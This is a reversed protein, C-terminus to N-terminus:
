VNQHEFPVANAGIGDSYKIGAGAATLLANRTADAGVIQITWLYGTLATGGTVTATGGGNATLYTQIATQLAAATTYNTGGLLNTGSANVMSGVSDTVLYVALTPNTTATIPNVNAQPMADLSAWPDGPNENSIGAPLLQLEVLTGAAFRSSAAYVGTSVITGVVFRKGSRTTAYLTYGPPLAGPLTGAILVQLNGAATTGINQVPWTLGSPLNQVEGTLTYATAVPFAALHLIARSREPFLGKMGSMYRAYYTVTEQFPDEPSHFPRFEGAYNTAPFMEMGGNAMVNVMAAPPVMWEVSDLNVWLTETYLAIQPNFYDPNPMSKVGEAAGGDTNVPVRHPIICDEWSEGVGPQRYKRPYAVVVFIYQGLTTGSFGLEPIFIEDPRMGFSGVREKIYQEMLAQFENYGIFVVQKDNPLEAKAAAEASNFGRPTFTVGAKMVELWRWTLLTNPLTYEPYSGIQTATIGWQINLTVCRVSRQFAMTCWLEWISKTWNMMIQRVQQLQAERRPKFALDIKSFAPTRVADRMLTATVKRHGYTIEKTTTWQGPNYGASAENVAQWSLVDRENPASVDFILTTDTDGMGENFFTKTKSLHAMLQSSMALSQYVEKSFWAPSNQMRTIVEAPTSDTNVSAGGMTFPLVNINSM